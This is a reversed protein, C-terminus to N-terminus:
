SPPFPPPLEKIKEMIGEHEFWKMIYVVLICFFLTLVVGLFLQTPTLGKVRDSYRAVLYNALTSGIGAGVSFIWVAIGPAIVKKAM